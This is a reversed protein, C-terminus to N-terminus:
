KDGEHPWSCDAGNVGPLSPPLLFGCIYADFWRGNGLANNFVRVFPALNQMGKALSSQNRELMSTFRNLKDLVPKFQADNEDVLASVQGALEKSMKLLTDIAQKRKQIETLLESGQGLIQEVQKNRSALTGSIQRTNNLLQRLQTDRSSITKSIRSLGDMSARVNPPTDQFTDSLTQLSNALQDTNIDSVRDALGNFADQVDYFISEATDETMPDSPNRAQSGRSEVSLYKQGLLTQLKIAVQSQDGVFADKVRFDIRVQDGELEVDSVTGAKVGGIRVTAGSQIGAAERVKATYTTGGGIFPLNESNMAALVLLAIVVLSTIGIPIPNRQSFPKM